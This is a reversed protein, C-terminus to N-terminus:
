QAKQYIVTLVDSDLPPTTFIIHTPTVTYGHGQVEMLGNRFVQFVQSLDASNSLPFTDNVGDQFEPALQEEVSLGGPGPPGPKGPPGPPGMTEVVVVNGNNPSSSVRKLGGAPLPLVTWTGNGKVQWVGTMKSFRWPNGDVDVWQSSM